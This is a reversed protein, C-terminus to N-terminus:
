KIWHWARAARTDSWERRVMFAHLNFVNNKGAPVFKGASQQNVVGDGFLPGLLIFEMM